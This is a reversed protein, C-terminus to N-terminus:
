DKLRAETVTYEEITKLEQELLISKNDKVLHEANAAFVKSFQPDDEVRLQLSNFAAIAISKIETVNLIIFDTYGRNSIAAHM